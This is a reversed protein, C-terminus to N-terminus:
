FLSTYRPTYRRSAKWVVSTHLPLTEEYEQFISSCEISVKIKTVANWHNTHKGNTDPVVLDINDYNGGRENISTWRTKEVQLARKEVVPMADKENACNEIANRTIYYGSKGFYRNHYNDIAGVAGSENHDKVRWYKESFRGSIMKAIPSSISATQYESSSPSSGEPNNTLRFEPIMYDHEKWENEISFAENNTFSIKTQLSEVNQHSSCKTYDTEDLESGKISQMHLQAFTDNQPTKCIEASSYKQSIEDPTKPLQRRLRKDEPTKVNSGAEMWRSYNEFADHEGEKFLSLKSDDSVEDSLVSSLDSQLNEM